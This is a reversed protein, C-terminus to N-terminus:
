QVTVTKASSKVTEIGYQDKAVVYVSWTGATEPQWLVSTTATDTDGLRYTNTGNTIYYSYKCSTSLTGSASASIKVTNGVSATTASVAATPTIHTFASWATASTSNVYYVNDTLASSYKIDGTLKGTDGPWGTGGDTLTTSFAIACPSNGSPYAYTSVTGSTGAHQVVNRQVGSSGNNWYWIGKTTTGFNFVLTNSLTSNSPISASTPTAYPSTLATPSGSKFLYTGGIEGILGPTGSAPYQDNTNGNNSVIVRFNGTDSTDFTYKYYGTTSDLTATGGPFAGAYEVSSSDNYLYVKYTSYSRNEFYITTTRINTVFRAYYTTNANPQVSYPNTTSIVSGGTAATFFGQFAYGSNEAAGLAVSSGADISATATAGATGGALSVNGGTGGVTGDTVSMLTVTYTKVFKAYYTKAATITTSYALNTSVRTTLASDSYWGDFRYGSNATANLTIATNVYNTVTTASGNINVTGGTSGTPITSAAVTVTYKADEKFLAYYAINAGNRTLTVTANTSAATGTCASNTFWGKFTYHTNAVATASVSTGNYDTYTKPVTISSGGVKVNGGTTSNQVTTTSSATQYGAGLVINYKDKERFKAYYTTNATATKSLAQETTLVTGTCNANDYWGEFTYNTNASATAAVSANKYYTNSFAATHATSDVTISGGTFGNTQKVDANNFTSADFTITYKPDEVFKAYFTKTAKSNVTYSYAANASVSTTCNADSYWGAFTYHTKASAALGLITTGTDYYVVKGASTAATSGSISVTGANTASAQKTTGDSDFAVAQANTTVKTDDFKYWLGSNKLVYVYTDDMNPSGSIDVRLSNNDDKLAEASPYQSSGNASVIFNYIEPTNVVDTYYYDTQADHNMISGPFDNLLKEDNADNYTYGYYSALSRPQVYVKTKYTQQAVKLNMDVSVESGLLASTANTGNLWVSVEITKAAGKAFDFIHNAQTTANYIYNNVSEVSVNTTTGNTDTVAADTAASGTKLIKTEDGCKLMIRFDSTDSITSGNKTVTFTPAGDFALYCIKAANVNFKYNIYKTGIDDTVSKRFKTATNNTPFYFNEGDASSAQAFILGQSSANTNKDFKNLSLTSTSKPDLTLQQYVVTDPKTGTQVDTPNETKISYTTGGEIWSYTIGAAVLSIVLLAMVSILIQHTKSKKNKM